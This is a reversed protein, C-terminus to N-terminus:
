KFAIELKHNSMRLSKQYALWTNVETYHEREYNIQLKSYTRLKNGTSVRTRSDSRGSNKAYVHTDILKVRM